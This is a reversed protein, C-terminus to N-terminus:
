VRFLQSSRRILRGAAVRAGECEMKWLATLFSRELIQLMSINNGEKFDM